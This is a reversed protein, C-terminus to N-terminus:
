CTPLGRRNMVNRWSLETEQTAKVLLECVEVRERAIRLKDNEYRVKFKADKYFRCVQEDTM